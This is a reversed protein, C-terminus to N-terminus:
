NSNEQQTLTVENIEVPASELDRDQGPKFWGVGEEYLEYQVYPHTDNHAASEATLREYEAIAVVLDDTRFDVWWHNDFEEQSGSISYQTM